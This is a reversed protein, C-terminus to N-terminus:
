SQGLIQFISFEENEIIGEIIDNCLLGFIVAYLTNHPPNNGIKMSFESNDSNLKLFFKVLSPSSKIGVDCYLKYEPAEFM